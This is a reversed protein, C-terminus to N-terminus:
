PQRVLMRLAYKVDQAVARLYSRGTFRPPPGAAPRLAAAREGLGNAIADAAGRIWLGIVSRRLRRAELMQRAFLEAMDDGFERRVAAPFAFLFLRYFRM